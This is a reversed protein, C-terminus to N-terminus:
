GKPFVNRGLLLLAHRLQDKGTSNDEVLEWFRQRDSKLRAERESIARNRAEVHADVGRVQTLKFDKIRWTALENPPIRQDLEIGLLAGGVKIIPKEESAIIIRGDKKQYIYYM